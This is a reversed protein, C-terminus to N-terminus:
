FKLMEEFNSVAKWEAQERSVEGGIDMPDQITPSRPLPLFFPNPPIDEGRAM